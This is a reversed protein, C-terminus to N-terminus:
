KSHALVKDIYIRRKGYCSLQSIRNQIEHVIEHNAIVNAGEALVAQVYRSDTAFVIDARYWHDVDDYAHLTDIIVQIGIAIGYLEGINNTGKSIPMSTSFWTENNANINSLNASVPPNEKM